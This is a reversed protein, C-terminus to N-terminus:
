KQFPVLIFNSFEGVTGRVAAVVSATDSVLVAIAALRDNGELRVARVDLAKLGGTNAFSGASTTFKVVRTKADIPLLAMVTDSSIGDAVLPANGGRVLEIIESLPVSDPDRELTSLWETCGALGAVLLTCTLFSRRM